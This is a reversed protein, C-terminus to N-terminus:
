SSHPQLHNREVFEDRNSCFSTKHKFRASFFEFTQSLFELIIKKEWRVGFTLTTLGWPKFEWLM